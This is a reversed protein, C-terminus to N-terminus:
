EFRTGKIVDLPNGGVDAIDLGKKVLEIFEEAVPKYTISNDRDIRHTRSDLFKYCLAERNAVCNKQLYENYKKIAFELEQQNACLDSYYLQKSEWASFMRNIRSEAVSKTDEVSDFQPSFPVGMGRCYTAIFGVYQPVSTAGKQSQTFIEDNFGLMRGSCHRIKTEIYTAHSVEPLLELGYNVQHRYYEPVTDSLERSFPAKFEYLIMNGNSDQGIGDPSYSMVGDQYFGDTAAIKHGSQKEAFNHVVDEMLNGWKTAVSGRSRSDRVKELFLDKPKTFPNGGVLVSISSGGITLRRAVHWEQSHQQPGNNLKKLLSDM